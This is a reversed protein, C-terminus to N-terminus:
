WRAIRFMERGQNALVEITTGILLVLFGIRAPTIVLANIMRAQSSVPTIDGYGTTSLTVTTYYIADILDVAGTPDNGDRYGERDLWVLLVTGFMIGFALLVRRGLEWWPSRARAPLAVGAPTSRSASKEEM